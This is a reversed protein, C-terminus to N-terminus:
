ETSVTETKGALPLVTIFFLVLIKDSNLTKKKQPVEVTCFYFYIYKEWSGTTGDAKVSM